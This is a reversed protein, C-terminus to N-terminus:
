MVKERKSNYKEYVKLRDHYGIIKDIYKFWKKWYYDRDFWEFVEENELQLHALDFTNLM